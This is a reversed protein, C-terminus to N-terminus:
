PRDEHPSKTFHCGRAEWKQRIQRMRSKIDRRDSDSQGGRILQSEYDSYVRSDTMWATGCNDKKNTKPAGGRGKSSGTGASSSSTASSASADVSGATSGGSRMAQYQAGVDALGAMVETMGSWFEANLKDKAAKFAQRRSNFEDSSSIETYANDKFNVVNWAGPGYIFIAVGDYTGAKMTGLLLSGDKMAQLGFGDTAGGRVEGVYIGHENETMTFYRSVDPNASPYAGVPKDEEFRGYYLLDGNPAYCAGRGNKKGKIFAGVYVTAGPANAIEEGEGQILMGRGNYKDKAFDGIYVGGKKLSQVGMGSKTKNNDAYQGLYGGKVGGTLLAGLDNGAASTTLGALLMLAALMIHKINNEM